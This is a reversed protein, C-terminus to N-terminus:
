ENESTATNYRNMAQAMGERLWCEIADCARDIATELQTLQTSTFKGLVYDAQPIRGPPDIGLRLRGYTRTGLVREIDALGNHGGTGGKDRLRIQGVPLAVDDVIILLDTAPDLKYFKVAEGVASGSRNRFTMPQALLCHEGAVLGDLVGCHFKTKVGTLHHRLALRDLVM